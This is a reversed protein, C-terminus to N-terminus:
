IRIAELRGQGKLYKRYIGFFALSTIAASLGDAVPEGYFASKASFVLPLLCVTGFYLIKRILSLGLSIRTMGLATLSDVLSKIRRRREDYLYLVKKRQRDIALCARALANELEQQNCPKLLYEIVGYKLAQQAYQFTDYGSLVITQLMPHLAVARSVLELGSMGPLRIDTLLIDPMDDTMSDLATIANACSATLKLDLKEWDIMQELGERIIPEDDVLLLKYM